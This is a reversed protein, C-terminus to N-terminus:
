FQENNFNRSQATVAAIVAAIFAVHLTCTCTCYLYLYRYQGEQVLLRVGGRREAEFDAREMEMM